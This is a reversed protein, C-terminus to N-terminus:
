RDMAGVWMMTNTHEAAAVVAALAAEYESRAEGRGLEACSSSLSKLFMHYRASRVNPLKLHDVFTYYLVYHLVDLLLM